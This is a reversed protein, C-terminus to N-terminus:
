STGFVYNQMILYYGSIIAKDSNVPTIDRSSFNIDLVYYDNLLYTFIEEFYKLKLLNM